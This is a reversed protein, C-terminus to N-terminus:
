SRKWRESDLKPATASSAQSPLHSLDRCTIEAGVGVELAGALRENLVISHPEALAQRLPLGAPEVLSHEGYFPYDQPEVFFAVATVPARDAEQLPYISAPKLNRIALMIQCDNEESWTRMRELALESFTTESFDGGEEVLTPDHEADTFRTDTFPPALVLDGRNDAQLNQTLGEGIMLGVTRLSVVAAVGVAICFLVFVTRQPNHRLNALAQQLYFRLQKM